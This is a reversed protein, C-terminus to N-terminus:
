RVPGEQELIVVLHVDQGLVVGGNWGSGGREFAREFLVEFVADDVQILGGVWTGVLDDGPDLFDEINFLGSM